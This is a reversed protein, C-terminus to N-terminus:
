GAHMRLGSKIAGDIGGSWGHAHDGDSVPVVEVGMATMGALFAHPM